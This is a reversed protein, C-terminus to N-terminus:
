PRHGTRVVEATSALSWELSGALFERQAEAGGSTACTGSAGGTKTDLIEIM